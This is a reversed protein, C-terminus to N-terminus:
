QFRKHFHETILEDIPDLNSYGTTRSLGDEEVSTVTYGDPHCTIKVLHYPSYANDVLCFFGCDIELSIKHNSTSTSITKNQWESQLYSKLEEQRKGLKELNAKKMISEDEIKKAKIKKSEELKDLLQKYGM